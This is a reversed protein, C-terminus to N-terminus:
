DRTGNRAQRQESRQRERSRRAPGVVDRNLDSSAESRDERPKRGASRDGAVANIAESRPRAQLIEFKSLAGRAVAGFSSRGVIDQAAEGLGLNPLSASGQACM